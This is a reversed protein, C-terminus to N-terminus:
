RFKRSLGSAFQDIVYCMDGSIALFGERYASLALVAIHRHILLWMVYAFHKYIHNCFEAIAWVSIKPTSTIKLGARPGRTQVWPPVLHWDERETERASVSYEQSPYQM